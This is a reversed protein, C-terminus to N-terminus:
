TGAKSPSYVPRPTASSMSRGPHFPGAAHTALGDVDGDDASPGGAQGGRRVDASRPRSADQNEIAFRFRTADWAVRFVLSEPESSRVSAWTVPQPRSPERSTVDGDPRDVSSAFATTSAVPHRSRGREARSRGPDRGCPTIVVLM